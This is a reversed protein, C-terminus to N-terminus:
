CEEQSFAKIKAPYKVSKNQFEAAMMAFLFLLRVGTEFFGVAGNSVMNLQGNQLWSFLQSTLISLVFFIALIAHRIQLSSNVVLTM